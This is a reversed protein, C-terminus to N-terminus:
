DKSFAKKMARMMSDEDTENPNRLVGVNDQPGTKESLSVVANDKLADIIADLPSDEGRSLSLELSGTMFQSILKTKVAPSIKSERVLADLKMSYNDSLVSVMKLDVPAPQSAAITTVKGQLEAIYDLIDQDSSIPKGIATTFLDYNMEKEELPIYVDAELKESEVFQSCAIEKWAGLGPIVPRETLAVHTIASYDPYSNGLSDRFLFPANLSVDYKETLGKTDEDVLKINAYLSNDDYSWGLVFGRNNDPNNCHRDKPDDLPVPVKIGLELMKNGTDSWSKILESNIKIKQEGKHFTGVHAVQKKYTGVEASLKWDATDRLRLSDTGLIEKIEM